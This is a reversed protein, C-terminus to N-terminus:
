KDLFAGRQFALVVLLFIGEKLLLV